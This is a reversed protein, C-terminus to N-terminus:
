YGGREGHEAQDGLGEQPAGAAAVIVFGAERAVETAWDSLGVVVPMFPEEFEFPDEDM